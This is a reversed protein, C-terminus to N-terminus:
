DIQTSRRSTSFCTRRTPHCDRRSTQTSHCAARTLTGSKKRVPMRQMSFSRRSQAGPASNQSPIQPLPQPVIMSGRSPAQSTPKSISATTHARQIRRQPTKSPKTILLMRQVEEVAAPQEPKIPEEKVVSGAKEPERPHKDRLTTSRHSSKKVNNAVICDQLDVLLENWKAIVSPSSKELNVNSIDMIPLPMKTLTKNLKLALLVRKLGMPSTNNGDWYLVKLTANTQLSKALATALSDGAAHGSIDLETLTSNTLLSFVFPLVDSKLQYKSDKIDGPPILITSLLSGAVYLAELPCKQKNYGNILEILKEVIKSTFKSRRITQNVRLCRLRPLAGPPTFSLYPNSWRGKPRRCTTCISFSTFHWNWLPMDGTEDFNDNKSINLDTM